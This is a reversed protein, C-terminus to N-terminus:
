PSRKDKLRRLADTVKNALLSAHLALVQSLTLRWEGNRPLRAIVLQKFQQHYEKAVAEGEADALIALALQAPGSGGYGWEFGTPSHNHLDTRLALAHSDGDAEIVFVCANGKKDRKGVYTKIM